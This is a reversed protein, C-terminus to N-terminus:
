VFNISGAKLVGLPATVLVTKAKAAKTVGGEVYAVNIVGEEGTGDGGGEEESNIETVRANLKIKDAFPTAYEAATNGFGVGPVNMYYSEVSSRGYEVEEVNLQSSDGAHEIETSDEM